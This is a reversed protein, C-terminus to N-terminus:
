NSRPAGQEQLERIRAKLADYDIVLPQIDADAASTNLAHLAAAREHSLPHSLLLAALDSNTEENASLREFFHELGGGGIHARRVYTWGLRDAESEDERSFKLALLPTADSLSLSHDNRPGGGIARLLMWVGTNAILQRLAHRHTVHGMEHGIVGALEEANRTELILGSNVLIHGGPLACANVSPDLVVDVQFPYRRDDAPLNEALRAAVARVDGIVRPDDVRKFTPALQGYLENGVDVENRIPILSSARDTVAVRVGPVLVFALLAAACVFKMVRRTSALHLRFRRPVAGDFGLQPDRLISDHATQLTWEPEQPHSFRIMGSLWRDRSIKLGKLPLTVRGNMASLVLNGDDTSLEGRLSQHASANRAKGRVAFPNHAIVLWGFM